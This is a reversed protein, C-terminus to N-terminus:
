KFDFEGFVCFFHNFWKIYAVTCGRNFNWIKYELVHKSKNLTNLVENRIVGTGIGHIFVVIENGMKLNDRIFDKVAVKASERDYEHLDLTPLNEIYIVSDLRM